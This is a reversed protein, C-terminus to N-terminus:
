YRGVVRRSGRVIYGRGNRDYCMTARIRVRYGDDYGVKTVPHCQRTEYYDRRRDYNFYRPPAYWHGYLYDRGRYPRRYYNDYYRRDYDRHRWRWPRHENTIYLGFQDPGLYIGFGVDDDDHRHRDCADAPSMTGLLGLSMVMAAMFAMWARKTQM